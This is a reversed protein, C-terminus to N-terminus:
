DRGNLYFGLLAALDSDTLPQAFGTLTDGRVGIMLRATFERLPMARAAQFLDEAPLLDDTDAPQGDHCSACLGDHLARALRRARPRHDAPLVGATDLPVRAALAELDRRLTVLDDAAIAARLAEMAGPEPPQGALRLLLPLGSAAGLLRDRLGRQHLPPLPEEALRRADGAMVLIEAAALRVPRSRPWGHDDASLATAAPVIIGVVVAGVAVAISLIIRRVM